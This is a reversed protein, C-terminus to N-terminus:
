HDVEDDDGDEISDQMELHRQGVHSLRAHSNDGFTKGSAGDLHGLANLEDFSRMFWQDPVRGAFDEMLTRTDHLESANLADALGLRVRHLDMFEDFTIEAAAPPGGRENGGIDM